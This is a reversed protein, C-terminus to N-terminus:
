EFCFNLSLKGVDGMTRDDQKPLLCATRIADREKQRSSSLSTLVSGSRSPVQDVGQTPRYNCWCSLKGRLRAPLTSVEVVGM